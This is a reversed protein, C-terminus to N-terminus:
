EEELELLPITLKTLNDEVEIKPENDSFYNYASVLNDFRREIDAVTKLRKNLSYTVVLESEKVVINFRLPITNTIFNQSIAYEFLIQLTGPIVFRDTDYDKSANFQLAEEYKAKFLRIIPLLSELEMKLPILEADQNDLTFRYVQALNNVQEDASKKNHYLESIIIELSQFLFDPNVQNKFTEMELLLNEKKTIEDKIRADNRKYLFVISFYYLNYFAAVVFYILNFTILETNITSFGEFQVFYFYLILSNVLFTFLISILIQIVIRFQFKASFLNLKNLIVIFLRNIELFVFTLLVVFVVERSFFNTTIQGVSDFFLLVLLYVVIGLIIPSALRFAYSNYFWRDKM